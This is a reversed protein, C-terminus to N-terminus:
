GCVSQIKVAEDNFYYTGSESIVVIKSMDSSGPDWCWGGTLDVQIQSWPKSACITVLAREKLWDVRCCPGCTRIFKELPTVAECVAEEEPQTLAVVKMEPCIALKAMTGGADLPASGNLSGHLCEKRVHGPIIRRSGNAQCTVVKLEGLREDRKNIECNVLDQEVKLAGSILPVSFREVGEKVIGFSISEMEPCISTVGSVVGEKKPKILDEAVNPKIGWKREDMKREEDLEVVCSDVEKLVKSVDKLRKNVRNQEKVIQALAELNNGGAAVEDELRWRQKLLEVKRMHLAVMYDGLSKSKARLAADM